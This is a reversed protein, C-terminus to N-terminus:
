QQMKSVELIKIKEIDFKVTNVSAARGASLVEKIKLALFDISYFIYILVLASMLIGLLLFILDQKNKFIHKIKELNM